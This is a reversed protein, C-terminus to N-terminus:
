KVRELLAIVEIHMTAPFMDIFVIKPLTYGAAAFDRIDRAFTTPNCSVYIIKQPGLGTIAARVGAPVGARPPDLIVTDGIYRRAPLSSADAALFEVSGITNSRANDRASAVAARDRDIGTGPNGFRALRLTFFGVGCGVDLFREGQELRAFEAVKELMKERLFRNSQFFSSIDRRYSIGSANEEVIREPGTSRLLRAHVDEAIRFEGTGAPAKEELGAILGESILRCGEPPFPVLSSTGRAYLGTEGGDYKVTAHSRYHFRPGSITEIEPIADRPFAGIRELSEALIGRKIELEHDYRIGLYDCGGCRMYNPCEPEMRMASAEIIEIIAGFAHSKKEVTISAHLRDGPFAYPVFVAMRDLFGLGYGGYAAKQIILECKKM